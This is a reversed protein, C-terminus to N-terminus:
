MKFRAMLRQLQASAEALVQASAAIEESSATIEEMAASVEEAAAASEQAGSAVESMGGLVQEAGAAMEEASASNEETVAAVGQMATSMRRASDAVATVARDIETIGSHTVSVAEAIEQLAKGTSEALAVSAAARGSGADMARTVGAIGKQIGELLGGIDAASSVSREALRRVEEAVVAFGRGAEGARAAEIAANLALLNTQDSIEEIVRTIEGIQRSADGLARVQEAAQQVAQRLDVIGQVTQVVVTSGSEAAKSARASAETVMAVGASVSEVQVMVSEVDDAAQQVGSAQEGAGRAIQAVSQQLMSMAEAAASTTTTQTQARSAIQAVAGAVEQSAKAAQDSTVGLTDAAEAVQQATAAVAAVAERLSKLATSVSRAMEGIEDNSHVAIDTVTLDGDALRRAADAVVRAPRVVQRTSRIAFFIGIVLAAAAIGIMEYEITRAQASLDRIAEDAALLQLNRLDTIAKDVRTATEEGANLKALAGEKDNNNWAILVSTQVQNLELMDSWLKEFMAAESEAALFPKMQKVADFIPTSLADAAQYDSFKNTVLYKRMLADRKATLESIQGAMAITQTRETMAKSYAANIQSFQFLAVAASAIMLLLVL